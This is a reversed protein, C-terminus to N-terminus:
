GYGGKRETACPRIARVCVRIRMRIGEVVLRRSRIGRRPIRRQRNRTQTLLIALTSAIILSIIRIQALQNPIPTHTIHVSRQRPHLINIPRLRQNHIARQCIPRRRSPTSRSRRPTQPPSQTLHTPPPDNSSPNPISNPEHSRIAAESCPKRLPIVVPSPIQFPTSLSASQFSPFQM